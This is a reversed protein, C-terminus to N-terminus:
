EKECLAKLNELTRATYEEGLKQVILKDALKGLFSGPLTYEFEMTVETGGDKPTSTAVQIGSFAGSIETKTFCGDSTLTCETIKVTIPFKKGLITTKFNGCTGAEGSGVINEPDSLGDNFLAFNNPDCAIRHIKEISADIFISKKVITM